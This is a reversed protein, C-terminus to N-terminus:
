VSTRGRRPPRWRGPSRRCGASGAAAAARRVQREVPRQAHAAQVHREVALLEADGVLRPSCSSPARPARRARVAGPSRLQRQRSSRQHNSPMGAGPSAPARGPHRCRRSGRAERLVAPLTLMSTARAPARAERQRLPEGRVRSPARMFSSTSFQCGQARVDQDAGALSLRISCM